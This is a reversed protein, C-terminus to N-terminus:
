LRIRIPLDELRAALDYENWGLNYSTVLGGRIIGPVAIGAGSVDPFAECAVSIAGQISSVIEEATKPRPQREQKLISGDGAIVAWRLNTGGLDIGIAPRLSM